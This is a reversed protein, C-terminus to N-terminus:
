KLKRPILDLTENLKGDRSLESPSIGIINRLFEHKLKQELTLIEQQKCMEMYIKEFEYKDEIKTVEETLSRKMAQKTLRSRLLRHILEQILSMMKHAENDHRSELMVKEEEYRKSITHKQAQLEADKERAYEKELDDKQENLKKECDQRSKMMQEEIEKEWNDREEDWLNLIEEKDTLHSKMMEEIRKRFEDELNEILLKREKKFEKVREQHKEKLNKMETKMNASYKMVVDSEGKMKEYDKTLKAVQRQFDIIKETSEELRDKLGNNESRERQYDEKITKWEEKYKENIAAIRELREVEDQLQANIEKLEVMRLEHRQKEENNKKALGEIENMCNSLDNELEKVKKRLKESEIDKIGIQKELENKSKATEALNLKNDLKENELQYKADDLEKKLEKSTKKLEIIRDNSNKELENFENQLLKYKQLLAKCDEVKENLKAQHMKESRMLENIRENQEKLKDKNRKESATIEAINDDKRKGDDRLKRKEGEQKELDMKYQLDCDELKRKLNELEFIKRKLEEKVKGLSEEHKAENLSELEEILGSKQKILAMLRRREQEHEELDKEHQAQIENMMKKLRQLEENKVAGDNENKMMDLKEKQLENIKRKLNDVHQNQLDKENKMEELKMDREEAIRQLSRKEDLVGQLRTEYDGIMKEKAKKLRDFNGLVKEHAKIEEELDEKMRNLKNELVKVQKRYDNDIMDVSDRLEKLEADNKNKEAKFMEKDKVIKKIKDEYYAKMEKSKAKCADLEENLSEIEADLSNKKREMLGLKKELSEKDDAMKEEEEALKLVKSKQKAAESNKREILKDKEDILGIMEKMDEEAKEKRKEAELLKKKLKHEEKKLKGNEERITETRQEAELQNTQLLSLEDERIRLAEELEEVKGKLQRNEKELWKMDDDASQLLDEKEVEVVESLDPGVMLQREDDEIIEEVSESKPRIEFRDEMKKLQNIEDQLERIEDCLEEKDNKIRKSEKGSVDLKDKLEDIDKKFGDIIEDKDIILNKQRESEQCIKEENLRLKESEEELSNIEAKLSDVENNIADYKALVDEVMNTLEKNERFLDSQKQKNADNEAILEAALKMVDEVATIRDIEHQFDDGSLSEDTESGSIEVHGSEDLVEVEAKVMKKGKKQLEQKLVDLKDLEDNALKSRRHEVDLQEELEKIREDLENENKMRRKLEANKEELSLVSEKNMEKLLEMEDLLEKISENKEKIQNEYRGANDFEKEGVEELKRELGNIMKKNKEIEAKKVNNQEELDQALELMVETTKNLEEIENKLEEIDEDKRSLLENKEEMLNLYKQEKSEVISPESYGSTTTDPDSEDFDKLREEIAHLKRNLYNCTKRADNYEKRKEAMEAAVQYGGDEDLLDENKELADVIMKKKDVLMQLNEKTRPSEKLNKVTNELNMRGRVLEDLKKRLVSRVDEEEEETLGHLTSSLMADNKQIEDELAISYEVIKWDVDELRNKLGAETPSDEEFFEINEYAKINEENSLEELLKEIEEKRKLVTLKEKMENLAELVEERNNEIEESADIDEPDELLAEIKKAQLEEIREILSQKLLGQNKLAEGKDEENIILITKDGNEEPVCLFIRGERLEKELREIEGAISGVFSQFGLTSGGESVPSESKYRVLEEDLYKLQDNLREELTSIEKIDEVDKATYSGDDERLKIMALKQLVNNRHDIISSLKQKAKKDQDEKDFHEEVLGQEEESYEKDVAKHMFVDEEIEAVKKKAKLLMENNKKEVVDGKANLYDCICENRKNFLSALIADDENQKSIDELIPTCLERLIDRDSNIYVLSDLTTKIDAALLDEVVKREEFDVESRGDKELVDDGGGVGDDEQMTHQEKTTLDLRESLESIQKLKSDIADIKKAALRKLVDVKNVIGDEEIKTCSQMFEIADFLENRQQLAHEVMEDDIDDDATVEQSNFDDMESVRKEVDESAGKIQYWLLDIEQQVAIEPFDKMKELEKFSDYRKALLSSLANEKIESKEGEVNSQTENAKELMGLLMKKRERREKVMMGSDGVMGDEIDSREVKLDDLRKRLEDQTKQADEKCVFVSDSINAKRRLLLELVDPDGNRELHEKITGDLKAQSAELSELKLLNEKVGPDKVDSSRVANGGTDSLLNLDNDIKNIIENIEEWRQERSKTEERGEVAGWVDFCQIRDRLDDIFFETEELCNEMMKKMDESDKKYLEEFGLFRKVDEDCQSYEVMQKINDILEEMKTREKLLDDNAEKMRRSANSVTISSEDCNEEAAELDELETQLKSIEAEIDSCRNIGEWRGADPKLSSIHQDIEVLTNKLTEIVEELSEKDSPKIESEDLEQNINKLESKLNVVDRGRKGDDEDESRSDKGIPQRLSLNTKRQEVEYTKAKANEVAKIEGVVTKKEEVVNNVDMENPVLGNTEFEEENDQVLCKLENNIHPKLKELLRKLGILDKAAAENELSDASAVERALIEIKRDIDEIRNEVEQIEDGPDVLPFCRCIDNNIKALQMELSSRDNKLEINKDNIRGKGDVLEQLTGELEEFEGETEDLLQRTRVAEGQLKKVVAEIDPDIITAMDHIENEVQAETLKEVLKKVNEEYEELTDEIKRDELRFYDQEKLEEVIKRASFEKNDVLDGFLKDGLIKKIRNLQEKLLEENEWKPIDMKEGIIEMVEMNKKEDQEEYLKLANEFEQKLSEKETKLHQIQKVLANNKNQLENVNCSNGEEGECTLDDPPIVNAAYGPQNRESDDPSDTILIEDLLRNLEDDLKLEADLKREILDVLREGGVLKNNRAASQQDVCEGNTKNNVNMNFEAVQSSAVEACRNEIAGDQKQDINDNTCENIELLKNDAQGTFDEVSSEVLLQKQIADSLDKIKQELDEIDRCVKRCEKVKHQANTLPLEHEMKTKAAINMLRDYDEKIKCYVDELSARDEEPIRDIDEIKDDNTIGNVLLDNYKVLNEKVQESNDKDNIKNNVLSRALEKPWSNDEVGCGVELSEKSAIKRGEDNDGKKEWKNEEDNLRKRSMEDAIKKKEAALRRKMKQVLDSAIAEVVEPMEGFKEGVAKLSTDIDEDGEDKVDKKNRRNKEDDGDEEDKEDDGDEEDKKDEQDEEVKKDQGDEKNEGGNENGGDFDSQVGQTKVVKQETQTFGEATLKDKKENDKGFVDEGHEETQSAVTSTEVARQRLLGEKVRSRRGEGGDELEDNLRQVINAAKKRHEEEELERRKLFDKVESQRQEMLEFSLDIQQDIEQQLKKKDIMTTGGKERDSGAAKLREIFDKDVDKRVNARTNEENGDDVTGAILKTWLNKEGDEFDSKANLNKEEKDVPLEPSGQNSRFEGSM